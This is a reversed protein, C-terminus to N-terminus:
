NTLAFAGVGWRRRNRLVGTPWNEDGLIWARVSMAPAARWLNTAAYDSAKQLLVGWLRARRAGLSFLLNGSHLLSLQQLRAPALATSSCGASSASFRQSHGGWGSRGAGIQLGATLPELYKQAQRTNGSGDRTRRLAPNKVWRANNSYSFVSAGHRSVRRRLTVSALPRWTLSRGAWAHAQPHRKSVDATLGDAQEPAIERPSISMPREKAMLTLWAATIGTVSLGAMLLTADLGPHM